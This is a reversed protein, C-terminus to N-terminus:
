LLYVRVGVCLTMVVATLLLYNMATVFDPDSEQSLLEDLIDRLGIKLAISCIAFTLFITWFTTM